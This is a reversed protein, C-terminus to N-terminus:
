VRACCARAAAQRGSRVGIEEGAMGVLRVVTMAPVGLQTTCCSSTIFTLANSPNAKHHQDTLVKSANSIILPLKLWRHSTQVPTLTCSSQDFTIVYSGQEGACVSAASPGRRATCPPPLPALPCPLPLQQAALPAPSHTQKISATILVQRHAPINQFAQVFPILLHENSRFVQECERCDRAAVPAATCQANTLAGPTVSGTLHTIDERTGCSVQLSVMQDSKFCEQRKRALDHGKKM